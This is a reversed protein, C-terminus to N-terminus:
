TIHPGLKFGTTKLFWSGDDIWDKAESVMVRGWKVSKCRCPNRPKHLQEQEPVLRPGFVLPEHASRPLTISFVVTAMM